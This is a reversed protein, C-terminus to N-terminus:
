SGVSDRRDEGDDTGRDHILIEKELIQQAQKVLPRIFDYRPHDFDKSYVDMGQIHEQITYSGYQVETLLYALVALFDAFAVIRGEPREKDKAQFWYCYTPARRNKLDLSVLVEMTKKEIPLAMGLSIERSSHKFPRPMDGTFSEEIDHMLAKSLALGKDPGLPTKDNVWDCIFMTYLATYYSHEAVNEKRFVRVTSFREVYRLRELSGTLLNRINM